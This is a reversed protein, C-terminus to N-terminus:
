ASGRSTHTHAEDSDFGQMGPDLQLGFTNFALCHMDYTGITFVLDLLQKRDLCAELERWTADSINRDACMEDVARLLAADLTGWSGEEVDERLAAIEGDSLGAKRGLRTHQAWQYEGRRLWATRLVVLERARDPLTSHRLHNSFPMWGRILEPHWAYVAIINPVSHPSPDAQEPPTSGQKLATLAERVNDDINPAVHPAPDAQEPSASGPNLVTFAERVEDDWDEVPRPAIRQEGM